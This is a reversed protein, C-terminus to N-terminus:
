RARAKPSVQVQELLRPDALLEDEDRHLRHQTRQQRPADLGMEDGSQIVVLDAPTEVLAQRFFVDLADREDGLGLAVRRDQVGPRADQAAGLVVAEGLEEFLGVCVAARDFGAGGDRMQRVVEGPVEAAVRDREDPLIQREGVPLVVGGPGRDVVDPGTLEALEAREFREFPLPDRPHAAPEDGRTVVKAPADVGVLLHVRIERLELAIERGIRVGPQGNDVRGLAADFLM